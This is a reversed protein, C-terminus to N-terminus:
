KVEENYELNGTTFNVSLSLTITDGKAGTDGKDGKDGKEGQEGKEGTDGKDGKAGTDGKSGKSGNKTEFTYSEGDTRTFTFINVGGDETSTKTQSGSTIYDKPVRNDLEKSFAESNIVDSVSIIRGSM